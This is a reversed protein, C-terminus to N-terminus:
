SRATKQAGPHVIKIGAEDVLCHVCVSHASKLVSWALKAYPHVQLSSFERTLSQSRTPCVEAISDGIRVIGDVYGMVTDFSDSSAVTSAGNILGAEDLGRPNELTSYGADKNKDVIDSVVTLENAPKIGVCSIVIKAGGLGQSSGNLTLDYSVRDTSSLIIMWDFLLGAFAIISVSTKLISRCVDPSTKKFKVM